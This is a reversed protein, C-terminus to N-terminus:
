SLIGLKKKFWEVEMKLRGIQEYLEAKEKEIAVNKTQKHRAFLQPAQEIFQRKWESLAVPHVGLESAIQNATKEGKLVEMVAKYKFEPSHHKRPGTM